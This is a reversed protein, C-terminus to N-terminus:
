IKFWSLRKFTSRIFKGDIAFCIFCLRASQFRGSVNAKWKLCVFSWGTSLHDVIFTFKNIRAPSLTRTTSVPFDYSLKPTRNGRWLPSGAAFSKSNIPRWLSQHHVFMLESFVDVSFYRCIFNQTHSVRKQKITSDNKMWISPIFM